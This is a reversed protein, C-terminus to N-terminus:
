GPHLGRDIRYQLFIKSTASIKIQIQYKPRYPMFFAEINTEIEKGCQKQLQVGTAL